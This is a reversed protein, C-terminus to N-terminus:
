NETKHRDVLIRVVIDHEKDEEKLINLKTTCIHMVEWFLMEAGKAVYYTKPCVNKLVEENNILFISNKYFKSICTFIHPVKIWAVAQSKILKIWWRSLRDKTLLVTSM